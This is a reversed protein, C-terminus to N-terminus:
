SLRFHCTWQKLAGEGDNAFSKQVAQIWAREAESAKAANGVASKLNASFSEVSPAVFTAGLYALAFSPDAKAAAAFHARAEEPHGVDTARMGKMFEAKAEASSTTVPTRMMVESGAATTAAVPKSKAAPEKAWVALPVLLALVAVSIRRM